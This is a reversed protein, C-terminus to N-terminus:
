VAIRPLLLSLYELLAKGSTSSLSSFSAIEIVEEVYGRTNAHTSLIPIMSLIFSRVSEKDKRDEEDVRSLLITIESLKMRESPRTKLFLLADTNSEHTIDDAIHHLRSLVTPIIQEKNSTILIFKVGSRPEELIKLLSNQADLGITHFSVVAVKEENYPAQAWSIILRATDIDLVTNDFLRHAPSMSSLKSWVEERMHARDRTTLLIAHHNPFPDLNM